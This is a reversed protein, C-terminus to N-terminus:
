RPRVLARLWALLRAWRSDGTRERPSADGDQRPRPARRTRDLYLKILYIERSDSM